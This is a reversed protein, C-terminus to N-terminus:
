PTDRPKPPVLHAYKPDDASVHTLRQLTVGCDPCFHEPETGDEWTRHCMLCFWPSTVGTLEPPAVDDVHEHAEAYAELSPWQTAAAAGAETGVVYVGKDTQVTLAEQVMDIIRQQEEDAAPIGNLYSYSALALPLADVGHDEPLRKLIMRMISQVVEFPASM